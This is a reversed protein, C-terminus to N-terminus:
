IKPENKRDFFIFRMAQDYTFYNWMWDILVIIKNKVGLISRLHVLMWVLWASFGSLRIKHLDAVAKNRGITALTGQNKYRFPKLEKGNEISKMNKALLKGQQIAVPAVQPHGNPYDEEVLLCADGIVFVDKYGQARNYADVMIRGGRGVIEKPLDDFHEVVVGSVWVLTKAPISSGDKLLVKQDEYGTVLTNLKVTVGMDQLFKLAKSSSKDSMNGLINSTGEILYINLDSSNLDPYDKSVIFSKMESLAGAIEVGTAGGGVVVINLLAQREAPDTTDLSKELDLLIRNRLLLAEEATKMPWSAKAIVENGFFNTTTGSAIVLYDYSISGISTEIQKQDFTVRQVDALRFYFDKKKNFMKRFPFSISAVDLGSSAIQYLLPPFQHYNFRDILVIQFLKHDLKNVLTIGGFGGGIIVVRKKNTHPIQIEKM